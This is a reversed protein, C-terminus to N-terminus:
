LKLVESFGEINKDNLIRDQVKQLATNAQDSWRGLGKWGIRKLAAVARAAVFNDADSIAPVLLPIAGQNPPTMDGLAVAARYRIMPSKHKLDWGLDTLTERRPSIKALTRAAELRQYPRKLYGDSGNLLANELVPVALAAKSGMRGLAEAAKFSGEDWPHRGVAEIFISLAGLGPPDIRTLTLAAELRLEPDPHTLHASVAPLAPQANDGSRGILELAIKRLQLSPESLAGVLMPISQGSELVVIQAEKRVSEDSDILRAVVGNMAAPSNASLKRLGYLAYRRSKPDPNELEGILGAEVESRKEASLKELRALAMNRTDDNPSVLRTHLPVLHNKIQFGALGLFILVLLWRLLGKSKM